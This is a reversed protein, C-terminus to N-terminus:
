KFVDALEDRPVPHAAVHARRKAQAAVRAGYAAGDARKAAARVANPSVYEPNDYLVPGGFSGALATIPTLTFRPGVEVLSVDAPDPKKASPPPVIQYNRVWVRGDLVSFSLVHDTFPKARPHRRPTAFTQTLMEKLLALHPQEDFAAHFSLIPRSGKLHNGALKLEAM